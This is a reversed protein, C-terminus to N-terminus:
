KRARRRAMRDLRRAMRGTHGPNDEHNELPGAPSEIGSEKRFEAHDWEPAITANREPVVDAKLVKVAPPDLGMLYDVAADRLGIVTGRGFYRGDVNASRVFEVSQM